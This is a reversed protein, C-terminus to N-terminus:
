DDTEEVVTNAYIFALGRKSGYWDMYEDIAKQFENSGDAKQRWEYGSSNEPLKYKMRIDDQKRDNEKVSTFFDECLRTDIIPPEGPVGFITNILEIISPKTFYSYLEFTRDNNLVKIYEIAWEEESFEREVEVEVEVKRPSFYDQITTVFDEILIVRKGPVRWEDIGDLELTGM